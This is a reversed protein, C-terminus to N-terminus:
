RGLKGYVEKRKAAIREHMEKTFPDFHLIRKRRRYIGEKRELTCALLEEDVRATGNIFQLIDRLTTELDQGQVLDEYFIIKLRGTFEKAWSLNTHEWLWLKNM